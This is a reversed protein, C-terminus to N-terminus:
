IMKRLDKLGNQIDREINELKDMIVLPKEYKMPKYKIEKYRSISLDYNNGIIEKVQVFFPVDKRDTSKSKHRCKWEKVIDQSDNQEIKERKDDLSYGDAQMDYFWVKETTGGKVFVLIATSVGAYPKFVGSPMSVVAQLECKELLM